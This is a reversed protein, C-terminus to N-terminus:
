ADLGLRAARRRGARMSAPRVEVELHLCGNHADLAITPGGQGVWRRIILNTPSIM